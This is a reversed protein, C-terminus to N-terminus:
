PLHYRLLKLIWNHRPGGCLEVFHFAKDHIFGPTVMSAHISSFSDVNILYVGLWIAWICTSIAQQSSTGQALPKWSKNYHVLKLLSIPCLWSFNQVFYEHKYCAMQSHNKSTLLTMHNCCMFINYQVTWKTYVNQLVVHLQWHKSKKGMHPILHLSFLFFFFRNLHSWVTEQFTFICTQSEVFKCLYQPIFIYSFTM